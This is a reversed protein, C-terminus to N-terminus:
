NNTKPALISARVEPEAQELWEAAQATNNTKWTSYIRRYSENRSKEDRLDSSWKMAESFKGRQELRSAIGYTVQPSVLENKTALWRRAAGSDNWAWHELPSVIGDPEGQETLHGLRWNLAKEPERKVWTQLVAGILWSKNNGAWNEAFHIAEDHDTYSLQLAVGTAAGKIEPHALLYDTFQKRLKPHNAIHEGIRSFLMRAYPSTSEQAKQMALPFNSRAIGALSVSECNVIDSVSLKDEHTKFWRYAEMPDKDTWPLFVTQSHGSMSPNALIYTMANQADTKAWQVLLMTIVEERIHERMPMSRIKAIYQELESADMSRIKEWLSWRIDMDPIGPRSNLQSLLRHIQLVGGEPSTEVHRSNPRRSTADTETLKSDLENLKGTNKETSSFLMKGGIVIGLGLFVIATIIIPSLRKM